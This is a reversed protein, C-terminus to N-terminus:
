KSSHRQRRSGDLYHKHRLFAWDRELDAKTQAIIQRALEIAEDARSCLAHTTESGRARMASRGTWKTRSRACGRKHPCANDRLRQRSGAIARWCMVVLISGNEVTPPTETERCVLEAWILLVDGDHRKPQAM